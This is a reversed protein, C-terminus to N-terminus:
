AKLFKSKPLTITVRTGVGVRSELTIDGNHKEVIKQCIALGLGHGSEKTTFFPKFINKRVGPEIGSGNDELIIFVERLNKRVRWVLRGGEGSCSELANNMLNELVQGLLEPDVLARTEEQSEISIEVGKLDTHRCYNDVVDRILAVIGCLRPEPQWDRAYELMRMVTAEIRDTLRRIEMLIPYDAGSRDAMEALVQIAGNIGALPNRIEHAISAGMEGISALHKARTLKEHIEKLGTVDRLICIFRSKDDIEVRSVKCHVLIDSGDRRQGAVEIGLSFVSKEPERCLKEFEENLERRQRAAALMLISRGRLAAQDYGFMRAAAPNATQICGRCDFTLIGDPAAELVASLNAQSVRLSAEVAKRKEIDDHLRSILRNFEEQLRGIEDDQCCIELPKLEGKEGIEAVGRSLQALPSAVMRHLLYILLCIVTLGAALTTFFDIMLGARGEKYFSRWVRTRLLLAPQNFIDGLYTYGCFWDSDAHFWVPQRPSLHDRARCVDEPMTGHDVPWIEIDTQIRSRLMEICKECLLRGMILTGRVEGKGSAPFVPRAALMMPGQSTRLLGLLHRDAHRHQLLPHDLPWNPVAFEKITIFERLDNDYCRGWVVVGRNDVFYILNLRNHIFCNEGLNNRIFEPNRDKLFRYTDNRGAWDCCHISLQELDSNVARVARRLDKRVATLEIRELAPLVLFRDMLLHFGLFFTVVALVAFVIKKRVTM